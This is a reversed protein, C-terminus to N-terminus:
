YKALVTAAEGRHRGVALVDDARRGTDVTEKDHATATNAAERDRWRDAFQDRLPDRLPSGGTSM